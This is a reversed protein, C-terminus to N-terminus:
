PLLVETFKNFSTFMRMMYVPQPCYKRFLFFFPQLRCRCGLPMSLGAYILVKEQRLSPRVTPPPWMSKQVGVGEKLEAKTSRCSSFSDKHSDFSGEENDAM